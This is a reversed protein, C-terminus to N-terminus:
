GPGSARSRGGGARLSELYRIMGKKVSRLVLVDQSNKALSMCGEFAAILFTATEDSDVDSRVLGLKQGQRLAASIGKHWASFVKALKVRFREDLPSMEQALNNLPCGCQLEEQETSRSQLVAVLADIPNEINKLPQLWKDRTIGLIVEDVVAYGLDEKSAFHHYLAGKTVRATALITELDTGRFGSKYVEQFAARLLRERTRRPNRPTIAARRPRKKIALMGILIYTPM